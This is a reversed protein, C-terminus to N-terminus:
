MISNAHSAWKGVEKAIVYAFFTQIKYKATTAKKELVRKNPKGLWYHIDISKRQNGRFFFLVHQAKKFSERGILSNFKLSFTFQVM